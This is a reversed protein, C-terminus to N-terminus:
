REANTAERIDTSKTSILDVEEEVSRPDVRGSLAHFIAAEIMSPDADARSRYNDRAMESGHEVFDRMVQADMVVVEAVAFRNTTGTHNCKPCGKGRVRVLNLPGWSALATVLRNPLADPSERLLTSCHRCLQPLLRQAIAGRVIKHDCFVKRALRTSDMIELREVFLFPDTVHITTFVQHGTVSAELASIAVDPGRLEGFLIIKPAMRLAVRGRDSYAAGTQTDDRANTVALQVAWPMPYEIPDEITIQRRHPKLRALEELVEKLSTTKGSGTPGTFIVIGNPADMLLRLKEINSATYGMAALGLSGEPQRPLPLPKLEVHDVKASAYQLRLTMFAGGSAQPYCPGRVIRVSTLNTEPPLVEGPIQANQFELPNYSADRVKALGQYIARVLAEGEQQGKQALVRLGGKVDIQIETHSGKMMFHLDSARYRSANTLLDIAEARVKMDVDTEEVQRLGAARMRVVEDLEVPKVTYAIGRSMNRDIWTLLHPDGAASREAFVVRKLTDIAVKDVLNTPLALVQSDQDRDTDM